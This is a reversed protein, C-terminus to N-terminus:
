LSWKIFSSILVEVYFKLLLVCLLYSGFIEFVM